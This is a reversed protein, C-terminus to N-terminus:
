PAGPTVNQYVRLTASDAVLKLGPSADLWTYQQWDAEKLLVIYRVNLRNLVLGVAQAPDAQELLGRVVANDSNPPLIVGPLEPDSSSVVPREFFGPAPNALPRGAWGVPLYQHWPLVLVRFDGSAANLQRNLETWDAPYQTSHLQRGAGWLLTPAFLLPLLLAVGSVALAATRRGRRTLVQWLWGLGAAALYAYALALLMLWKGPERYGNFLPVHDVLWHTFGASVDWGVGLALWWAVLGSVALALGLRDRRRVVHVIGAVVLAGLLGAAVLWWWGLSSPVVYTRSVDNWFGELLAASLPLNGGVTGRTAYATLESAQIGAITQGGSSTGHVFPVLWVAMLLGWAAALGLAWWLWRRWHGIQMIAMVVSVLALIGIAHVSVLSLAATWGLAVLAARRSPERLLRWVAGAAWPLLAWGALVLYQGEVFRTYVWPNLVYLLGALYVPAAAEHQGNREVLRYAGVGGLTLILLLVLKQVWMSGIVVSLGHMLAKLLFLQDGVGPVDIQPSWVMDLALIYGPLLLPGMILLALFGFELWVTITRNFIKM